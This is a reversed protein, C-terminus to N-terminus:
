VYAGGSATKEEVPLFVANDQLISRFQDPIEGQFWLNNTEIIRGDFFQIKFRRGGFGKIFSDTDHFLYHQGNIIVQHNKMYDPYDTKGLWFSCDFCNNGIYSEPTHRREFSKGCSPCIYSKPMTIVEKNQSNKEKWGGAATLASVMASSFM